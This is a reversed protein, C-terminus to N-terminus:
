QFIRQITKEIYKNKKAANNPTVSYLYINEIINNINNSEAFYKISEDKISKYCKYMFKLKQKNDKKLKKDIFREMNIFSYKDDYIKNFKKNKITFLIQLEKLYIAKINAPNLADPCIIKCINKFKEYLIKTYYWGTFNENSIYFIKKAKNEFTDLESYEDTSVSNIFVFKDINDPQLHKENVAKNILREVSSDLKEWNIYQQSLETINESLENAAKLFNYGLNNYKNKYKILNLIKQKQNILKTEDYFNNFNIINEILAPYKTMLISDYLDEKIIATKIDNIIIGNLQNIDFPCLFYDISNISYEKEEAKQAIKNFLDAGGCGKIIYIKDLNKSDYIKNFLNVFGYCTNAYAFYNNKEIKETM